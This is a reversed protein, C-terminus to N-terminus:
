DPFPGAAAAIKNGQGTEQGVRFAFNYLNHLKAPRNRQNTVIPSLAAELLGRLPKAVLLDRGQLSRL